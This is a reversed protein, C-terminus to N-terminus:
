KGHKPREAIEKIKSQGPDPPRSEEAAELYIM